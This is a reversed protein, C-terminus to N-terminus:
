SRGLRKTFFYEYAAFLLVVIFLIIILKLFLANYDFTREPTLIEGQSSARLNEEQLLKEKEMMRLERRMDNFQDQMTVLYIRESTTEPAKQEYSLVLPYSTEPFNSGKIYFVYEGPQDFSRDLRAGPNFTKILPVYPNDNIKLEVDYLVQDGDNMITVISSEALDSYGINTVNLAVVSVACLLLGMFLFLIQKVVGVCGM